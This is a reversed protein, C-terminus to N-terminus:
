SFILCFHPTADVFNFSICSVSLEIERGIYVLLYYKVGRCLEMSEQSIGIVVCWVVIKTLCKHLMEHPAKSYIDNLVSYFNLLSTL